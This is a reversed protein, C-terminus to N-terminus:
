PQGTNKDGAGILKDLGPQWEANRIRALVTRAAIFVTAASAIVGLWITLAVGVAEEVAARAPTPPGVRSGNQGVWIDIHDGPQVLQQALVTGTHEAGAALWRVQATTTKRPWNQAISADTVTASVMRRTLAQEAYFQRRSDHVAAGVAAGFPAALLSVVVVVLVLAEVRDSARMLPNRRFVGLNLWRPLRVAFTDVADGDLGYGTVRQCDPHPSSM